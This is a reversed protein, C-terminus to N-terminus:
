DKSSEHSMGESCCTLFPHGDDCPCPKTVLVEFGCKECLYRDGEAPKQEESM